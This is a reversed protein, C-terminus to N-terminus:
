DANIILIKDDVTAVKEDSITYETSRSEFVAPQVRRSLQTETGVYMELTDAVIEGEDTLLDMQMVGKPVAIYVWTALVLAM